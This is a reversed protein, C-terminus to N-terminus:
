PVCPYFHLVQGPQQSTDESVTWVGDGREDYGVAEGQPESLPGAVVLLPEIVALDSLSQGPELRYEFAGTYLRLLLRTGSPHLDGGTIMFGLPVSIGPSAFRGLDQLVIPAGDEFPGTHEFIRPEPTLVKEILAVSQGAPDVLLAESDVQDDPYSVPLRMIPAITLTEFPEGDLAPEEVVYIALDSRRLANNGVDAVWLCHGPRDPCASTAIDEFDRAEVGDLIVRGLARGDTGLAFLRASDGSDNHLWLVGPNQRSAVVGSAETLDPDGMAGADQPRGYTGECALHMPAEPEADPEPDGVDPRPSGVDPEPDTESPLTAEPAGGCALLGLAWVVWVCIRWRTM